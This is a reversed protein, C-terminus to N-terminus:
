FQECFTSNKKSEFIKDRPIHAKGKPISITFATGKGLKSRVKIKGNHILLDAKKKQSFGSLSFLGAASLLLFHKMM